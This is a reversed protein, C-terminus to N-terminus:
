KFWSYKELKAMTPKEIFHIRLQDIVTCIVFVGLVAGVAHAVTYNTFYAGVNNLADKWLWQRMADSNAHICLVGFTSAAVSNIFRSNKIQLNKFFMLSTIATIVALIKNSDAVFFYHLGTRGTKAGFWTLVLVSCISVIVSMLTLGGWLKTNDSWKQPYLRLYSAIFFLVGFWSVYNFTIGFSPVSGILTYAFGCLLLLYRHQKETMNQVLITLFPITLYFVLFCGTFNDAVRTVPLLLKVFSVVGFSTYGTALFVAYFVFRYFYVELLLKAYKKMTIHSKCMFYGTILVFCNIGTKGWMGFLLLFISKAALPNTLIPGDAATLGSNVVYHHAVILLMVIIRYLELNSNREKAPLTVGGRNNKPAEM